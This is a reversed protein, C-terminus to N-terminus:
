KVIWVLTGDNDFKPEKDLDEVAIVDWTKDSPIDFEVLYDLLTDPPENSGDIAVSTIMENNRYLTMIEGHEGYANTIKINM